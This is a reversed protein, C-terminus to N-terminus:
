PALHSLSTAPIETETGTPPTWTLQLTAAGSRQLFGVRITHMGEDLNAWASITRFGHLGDNDIVLRDDIWLMSGDDSSLAFTYKGTHPVKLYGDYWLAYDPRQPLDKLDVAPLIATSIPNPLAKQPVTEATCNWMRRVLGPKLTSADVRKAPLPTRDADRAIKLEGWNAPSLRAETPIDSVMATDMNNWCTRLTTQSGTGRLIGIDGLLNDGIRGSIGLLKLPVSLEVNGGAQVLEVQDSVIAVDDFQVKGIPSEYLVPRGLLDGKAVQRYLVALKKGNVECALLRLDGAQPQLGGASTKTWRNQPGVMIDVGGGRKFAFEPDAAANALVKPNGTKWAAYFKDGKIAMAGMGAHGINGWDANAWEDLKGDVVPATAMVGIEMSGRGGKRAPFVQQEPLNTLTQPTVSLDGFQRRKVSQLGDIRFIASYEKGAVMYVQDDQTHTVSPHFHEDDFSYGSVDMGREAKPLRLLNATSRHGGLTQVFLGDSTMVYINGREGNTVGVIGADGRQMKFYPGMLRTPEVMDGPHRPPQGVTDDTPYSWIMQGDRYGKAMGQIWFGDATLIGAHGDLGWCQDATPPVMFTAKAIDYLLVGDPRIVPPPVMLNWSGCLSLDAIPAFTWFGRLPRPHGDSLTVTQTFKRTKVEDPEIKGNANLDTWVILPLDAGSEKQLAEIWPLTKHNKLWYENADEWYAWAGVYCVPRGLGTKEDYLWVGINDNSRLSSQYGLTLYTRGNVHWAVEPCFGFKGFVNDYGQESPRIPINVLTAKGAKWDLKFEMTCGYEGYFLRTKDGPDITGGGGYHPPGYHARKFKGTAADWVSVRKPMYDAEGVWLQGSSDIALGAPRQMQLENYKGVQLKGPQGIDMLPKYTAADYVKVQNTKGWLAVYLKKRQLDYQLTHPADLGLLVPQTSVVDPAGTQPDWKLTMLRVQDRSSVLIQDRSVVLVGVPSPVSVSGLIKEKGQRVDVFMIANDSLVTFAALGDYVSLCVGQERPHKPMEVKPIYEAIKETVAAKYWSASSLARLYFANKEGYTCLAYAAHRTNRLKGSDTAASEGGDWGWFDKHLYTEGDLGVLAVPPNCEGCLATVLMQPKGSGYPSDGAPIFAVGTAESHDAPWAGRDDETKWPPNGGSYVPFEYITKLGDHTLGRAHYVGPQVRHRTLVGDKTMGDDYGDWVIRNKGAPMRTESVLNRVRKGAADEIVVTVYQPTALEFTIPIGSEIVSTAAPTALAEAQVPGAMSFLALAGAACGVGMAALAMWLGKRAPRTQIASGPLSMARTKLQNM